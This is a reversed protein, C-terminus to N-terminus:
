SDTFTRRQLNSALSDPLGAGCQGNLMQNVVTRYDALQQRYPAVYGQSRAQPMQQVICAVLAELTTATSCTLQAAGAASASALVVGACLCRLTFSWCRAGAPRVLTENHNVFIAGAKVHTKTKM